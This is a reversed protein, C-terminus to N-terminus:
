PGVNIGIYYKACSASTCLHILQKYVYQQTERPPRKGKSITDREYYGKSGCTSSKCKYPGSWSARLQEIPVCKRDNTLCVDGSWMVENSNKCRDSAPGYCWVISLGKSLSFTYCGATFQRPCADGRMAGFATPAQASRASSSLQSSSAPVVSSGAACASLVFSGAALAVPLGLYRIM